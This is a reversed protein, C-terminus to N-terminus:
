SSSPVDVKFLPVVVVSCYIRLVKARHESVTLKDGGESGQGEMSQDESTGNEHVGFLEVRVDEGVEGRVGNSKGVHGVGGIRAPADVRITVKQKIIAYIDRISSVEMELDELVLMVVGKSTMKALVLCKVEDLMFESPWLDVGKDFFITGGAGCAESGFRLSM